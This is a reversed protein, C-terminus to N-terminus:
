LDVFWGKQSARELSYGCQDCLWSSLEILLWANPLTAWSKCFSQRPSQLVTIILTKKNQKTKKAVWSQCFWQSHHFVYFCPCFRGIYLVVFVLGGNLLFPWACTSCAPRTETHGVDTLWRYSVGCSGPFLIGGQPACVTDEPWLFSALRVTLM